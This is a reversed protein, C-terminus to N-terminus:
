QTVDADFGAYVGPYGEASGSRGLYAALDLHAALPQVDQLALLLSFLLFFNAAYIFFYKCESDGHTIM